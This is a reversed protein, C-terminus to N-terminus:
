FLQTFTPGSVFFNYTRMNIWGLSWCQARATYTLAVANPIRSTAVLPIEIGSLNDGRDSKRSRAAERQARGWIELKIKIRMKIM